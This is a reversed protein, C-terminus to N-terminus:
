HSQLFRFFFPLRLDLFLNAADLERAIILNEANDLLADAATPHDDPAKISFGAITANGASELALQPDALSVDDNDARPLEIAVHFTIHQELVAWRLHIEELM